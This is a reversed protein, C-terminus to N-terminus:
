RRSRTARRQSQRELHALWNGDPVLESEGCRSLAFKSGFYVWAVAEQREGTAETYVCKRAVREYHNSKRGVEFGELSDLRKLINPWKAPDVFMLDGIVKSESQDADCIYAIGLSYMKAGPLSAPIEALTAGKLINAWNGQGSRLTGYVFVPMQSTMDLETQEIDTIDSPKMM